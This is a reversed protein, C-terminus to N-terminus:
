RRLRNHGIQANRNANHAPHCQNSPHSQKSDEHWAYIQKVLSRESFKSSSVRQICDEREKTEDDYGM